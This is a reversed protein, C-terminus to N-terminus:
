RTIRLLTERMRDGLRRDDCVGDEREIERKKKRKGREREWKRHLETPNFPSFVTILLAAQSANVEGHGPGPLFFTAPNSSQQRKECRTYNKNWKLQWAYRDTYKQDSVNQHLCMGHAEKVTPHPCIYAINPHFTLSDPQANILPIAPFNRLTVVSLRESYYQFAQQSM